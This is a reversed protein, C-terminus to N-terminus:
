KFPQIDLDSLANCDLDLVRVRTGNNLLARVLAEGVFGAGGTVLAIETM